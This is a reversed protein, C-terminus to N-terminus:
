EDQILNYKKAEAVAMTRRKVNLKGFINKVHYKVTGVAIVLREAIEKNSLGLAILNLVELERETLPEIIGKASNGSPAQVSISTDGFSHLLKNVYIVQASLMHLVELRALAFARETVDNVLYLVGNREGQVTIPTCLVSRTGHRSVYPDTVFIGEKSAYDLVKTEGTRFVYRVIAESIGQSRELPSSESFAIPNVEMDLAVAVDLVDDKKVIIYGRQAGANEIILLLLRHLLQRLDMEESMSQSAKVITKLDLGANVEENENSSHLFRNDLSDSGKEEVSVLLGQAAHVSARETKSHRHKVCGPFRKLVQEAKSTAGWARFADYASSAYVNAMRDIGNARYFYAAREMTIAANQIYENKTASHIAQEYLQMAIDNTGSIRAMEAEIVQLKHSSNEPANEAWKRMQKYNRMIRRMMKKKDSTGFEDYCAAIALSEYFCCEILHPLHTAYSQFTRAADAYELAKSYSGNFYHLQLVYTYYQFMTTAMFQEKSVKDLFCSEKFNATDFSVLHATDGRLALIWQQFLHFNDIVFEDKTDELIELYNTIKRELEDLQMRAYLSNVQGGMAYGAFVYDGSELAFQLAQELYAEGERAHKVWQSIIGFIVYTKSKISTINFQESLSLGIKGLRYGKKYDGMGFGLVMGFAAFAASSVPCIGYKVSLRVSRSMLVTFIEKNSFFSPAAITFMLDMAAKIDENQMEPLDYLRELKSGLQWKTLLVERMIVLRGPKPAFSIGFEALMQLGLSIAEAYKGLNVYQTAIIKCVAARDLRNRSRQRLQEALNEARTFEGCLYECEMQELYLAFCLDFQEEWHNETTHAAGERFLRVAADYASASRAKRGATLNIKMVRLREADKTIYVAGLNLHKAQEFLDAAFISNENEELLCRGVKWHFRQREEENLLSYAAQQIRDHLFGFRFKRQAGRWEHWLATGLGDKVQNNESKMGNSGAIHEVPFVLGERVGIWLDSALEDFSLNGVKALLEFDFQSGLCSAWSLVVQVRNPLKKIKRLMFDLLDAATEKSQIREADWKWTRQELSYVLMKENYISKFLQKFYFPNGATKAYLLDTLTATHEPVSRLTDAVMHNLDAHTLASLLLQHVGVGSQKIEEMKLTFPHMHSVDYDRYAGILLLCESEPDTVFSHIMALSASDAWQLDDLFLILPCDKHTFVQIFNRFVLQFRHRAEAPSLVEVPPVNGVLMKVEPIVDTIVAANLGLANGLKKKWKLIRGEDESLIQRVLERFAEVLPAYPIDRYLQEFKGAIFYGQKGALTQRIERVLTTKGIGAPGSILIVETSGLCACRYTDEIFALESGRGYLDPNVQFIGIGESQGLPFDTVTETAMWQTLCHELDAQLSYASQYREEANKSILKMIIESVAHPVEPILVEISIPTRAIHAHIWEIPDYAQFPHQGALMEYFIIGLSYLDTRYDVPRNLRGTMEPSVYALEGQLTDTNQIQDYVSVFVANGFDILCVQMAQTEIMITDPKLDRHIISSQHLQEVVGALRIAIQLFEEISPRHETLYSRLTMGAVDESVLIYSTGRRELSLPKTIGQMHMERVVEFEAIYHAADAASYAESKGMKIIVPHNDYERCGRCIIKTMDEYLVQDIQYGAAKM